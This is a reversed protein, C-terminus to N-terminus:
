DARETVGFEGRIWFGSGSKSRQYILQVSKAWGLGWGGGVSFIRSITDQWWPPLTLFSQDFKRIPRSCDVITILSNESQNSLTTYKLPRLRSKTPSESLIRPNKFSKKFFKTFFHVSFVCFFNFSVFRCDRLIRVGSNFFFNFSVFRCFAKTDECGFLLNGISIVVCGQFGNNWQRLWILFNDM